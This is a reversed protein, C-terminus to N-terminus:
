VHQPEEQGIQLQNQKLSQSNRKLADEDNNVFKVSQSARLGEPIEDDLEMENDTMIKEDSITKQDLHVDETNSNKSILSKSYNM